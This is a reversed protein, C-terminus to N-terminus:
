TANKGKVKKNLLSSITTTIFLVLAFRILDLNYIIVTLWGVFGLLMFLLLMGLLLRFFATEKAFFARGLFIGNILFYLISTALGLVPSQFTNLNMYMVLVLFDSGLTFLLKPDKAVLTEIKSLQPSSSVQVGCGVTDM